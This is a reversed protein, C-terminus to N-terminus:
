QQLAVLQVRELVEDGALFVLISRVAIGAAQTVPFGYAGGGLLRENAANVIADVDLTAIDAHIVDIKQM